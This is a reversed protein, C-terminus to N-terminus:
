NERGMKRIKEEMEKKLLEVETLIEDQTILGKRELIKILGKRELIKILAQVELMNSLVLEELSVMPKDKSM